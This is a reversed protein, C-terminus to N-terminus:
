SAASSRKSKKLLEKIPTYVQKLPWKVELGAFKLRALTTNYGDMVEEELSSLLRPDIEALKKMLNKREDPTMIRPDASMSAVHFSVNHDLLNRIAQFPIEFAELKAGTKKTFDEPTGAKLSVRIHPKTFKSIKKVYDKDVGFLIGNTELIFLPFESEEVYELLSLLHNKGLTPEAGSIRLKNVKYKHAAERLRSFSEEPSHFRGFKEPFDRAWSVWCFVCRFCCGVCYGTAIGGYVGTAYFDEYKREVGRLGTKTVMRETEKALEVPDFPEFDPTIFRPYEKPTKLHPV